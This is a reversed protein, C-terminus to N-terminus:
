KGVCRLKAPSILDSIYMLRADDSRGVGNFMHTLMAHDRSTAESTCDRMMNKNLLLYQEASFTEESTGEQV